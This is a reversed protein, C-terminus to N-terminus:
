TKPKMAKEPELIHNRAEFDELMTKLQKCAVNAHPNAFCLNVVGFRKALIPKM